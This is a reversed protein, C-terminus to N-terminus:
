SDVRCAGHAVTFDITDLGHNRHFDTGESGGYPNNSALEPTSPGFFGQWPWSLEDARTSVHM